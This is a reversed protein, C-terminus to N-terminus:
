QGFLLHIAETSSPPVDTDPIRRGSFFDSQDRLKKGLYDQIPM